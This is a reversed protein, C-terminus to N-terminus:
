RGNLRPASKTEAHALSEANKEAVEREASPPAPHNERASRTLHALDAEKPTCRRNLYGFRM